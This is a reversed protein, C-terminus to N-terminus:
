VSEGEVTLPTSRRRFGDPVTKGDCVEDLRLSGHCIDFMECTYTAKCQDECRFWLKHDESMRIASYLNFLEARFEARQQDSRPIWRRNFYVAPNECVEAMLRSAYMEVTEMLAFTGAKAGAKFDAAKDGVTVNVVVGDDDTQTVVTYADGYYTGNEVLEASDKQSLAKPKTTPRHWVDYLTEGFPEGDKIGWERRTEVPTDAFALDYMSVQTDLKSKSWYASGDQIDYSTSKFERTGVRGDYRIVQDIKGVRVVESMPLPLGTRPEHIPLDFEQETTLVEVPNDGWYWLHAAFCVALMTKEVAWETEDKWDPIENYCDDLYALAQDMAQDKCLEAATDGPVRGDLIDQVIEDEAVRLADGYVEQLAHWNTGIRQGDTDRVPRLGEPYRIRYLMTCKKYASIASASLKILRKPTLPM